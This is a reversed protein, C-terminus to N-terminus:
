FPLKYDSPDEFEKSRSAIRTFEDKSPNFNYGMLEKQTDSMKNYFEIPLNKNFDFSPKLFWRGYTYIIAWRDDDNKKASSGHWCSGNFIIYFEWM